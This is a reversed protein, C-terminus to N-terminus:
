EVLRPKQGGYQPTLKGEKTYFGEQVLRAKAKDPQNIAESVREALAQRIADRDSERMDCGM